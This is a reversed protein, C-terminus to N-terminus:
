LASQRWPALTSTQLVRRPQWGPGLNVRWEGDAEQVAAKIDASKVWVKGVPMEVLLWSPKDHKM